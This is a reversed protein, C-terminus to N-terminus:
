ERWVAKQAASLPAPPIMPRSCTRSPATSSSERPPFTRPSPWRSAWCSFRFAGPSSSSTSAAPSVLCLGIIPIPGNQRLLRLRIYSCEIFREQSPGQTTVSSKPERALPQSGSFSSSAAAGAANAASSGNAPATKAPARRSTAPHSPKASASSVSTRRKGCAAATGSPGGRGTRPKARAEPPGGTKQSWRRAVNPLLLGGEGFVRHRGDDDLGSSGQRKVVPRGGALEVRSM